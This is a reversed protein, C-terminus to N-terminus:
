FRLVPKITVGKIMDDVAKNIDEFSYYKILRDYPLRGQKYLDILVPIFLDPVSDGEIIGKVSRENMILDMNLTVETGPAVAGVQGCVGLIALCDTAQRLLQPNGVCELSYNVGKGTIDMIADVPNNNKPNITHTAGLERALELRDDFLDIAIITTCGSIVAGMIASMGVTGAGFVAISSGAQAKLSNLVAGVGTQIGCGLPALVELPVDQRVKVVNTENALAHTAFASQCFFSGHIDESGKKITTSGDSWRVGGFNIPLFNECCPDKGSKCSPCVGCCDWSLAVHDGPKVKKVRNGVKEVVGAGEHGLVGPLPYPLYQERAALDTHCIGSGVIRVLVENDRPESLEVQEIKFEASKKYTIAAKIDM